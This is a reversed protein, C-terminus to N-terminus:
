ITACPWREGAECLLRVDYERGPRCEQADPDYSAWGKGLPFAVMGRPLLSM